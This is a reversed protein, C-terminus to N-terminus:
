LSFKERWQSDYDRSFLLQVRATKDLEGDDLLRCGGQLLELKSQDVDSADAEALRDFFAAIELIKARIQLYEEDLVQSAARPM